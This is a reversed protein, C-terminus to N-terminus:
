HILSHVITRDLTRLPCEQLPWVTRLLLDLRLALPFKKAPDQFGFSAITVLITSHVPELLQLLDSNLFVQCSRGLFFPRHRAVVPRGLGHPGNRPSRLSLAPWLWLWVCCVACLWVAACVFVCVCVCPDGYLMCIYIYIYTCTCFCVHSLM